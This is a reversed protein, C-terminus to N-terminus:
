SKKALRDILEFVEREKKRLKKNNIKSPNSKRFFVPGLYIAWAGFAVLFAPWPNESGLAGIMAFFSVVVTVLFKGLANM